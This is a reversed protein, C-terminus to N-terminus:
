GGQSNVRKIIRRALWPWVSFASMAISIMAPSRLVRAWLRCFRQRHGVLHRHESIWGKAIETSWDGQSLTQNVWRTVHKASLLGWAMGEGTFPEVYGSADGILFVRRSSVPFTTRTLPVTGHWEANLMRRPVPFGAKELLLTTAIAPSGHRRLEKRDFAAALNLRNEEVRVLGAYGGSGAAMWITGAPFDDGTEEILCGVGLRSSTAINTTWERSEPLSLGELGSAVVITKALIDTESGARVVRLERSQEHVQGVRCTVEPLFEVGSEIASRILLADLKERSVALGGPLPVTISQRGCHLHFENLRTGGLRQIEDTLGIQALVDLAVGNLCAGCVKNRPFQRKDVLLVRHGARRAERAAVSGAVGAGVVVVDWVTTRADVPSLTASLNM